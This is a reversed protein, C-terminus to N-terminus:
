ARQRTIEYLLISTACAINMSSASGSMPITLMVACLARYSESLGHNENGVVLVTPARFDHQSIPQTAKASTGVLQLGPLRQRLSDLWPLLEKHSPLVVTPLAFFSGTTARVTEPDYLDAAHGTIVLGHVGLADCSRMITGLNGPSAPRDLVVVCLDARIPIRALDNPPTAVLALLESPEEKDSLKELLAVSLEYHKNATSQALIGTAWDSLRKERTYIWANVRWGYKLAHNINRVGEVFFEGARARKTRNRKLTELYQFDANASFIKLLTPKM